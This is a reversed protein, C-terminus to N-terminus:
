EINSEYIRESDNIIGDLEKKFFHTIHTSKELDFVIAPSEIKKNRYMEFLSVVVYRNDFIQLSHNFPFQYYYMEIRDPSVNVHKLVEMFRDYTSVIKYAILEESYEPYLRNVHKLLNPDNPNSLILRIKTNPKSMFAILSDWHANVWSDFYFVILDISTDSGAILEDWSINKFSDQYQAIQPPHTPKLVLRIHTIITAIMILSLCFLSAGFWSTDEVNIVHFHDMIVIVTWTTLYLGGTVALWLKAHNM